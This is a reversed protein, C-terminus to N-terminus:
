VGTLARIEAIAVHYDELVHVGTLGVMQAGRVNGPLDDVFIAREPSIGGLRELTLNFIGPSPKRMKVESSDIIVDFIDAWPAMPFWLPRLEIANNTVMALKYGASRLDTLLDLVEQRLNSLPHSNGAAAFTPRNPDLELGREVALAGILPRMEAMTIEGRELRHWPHDTDQGDPGMFLNFFTDPEYGKAIASERMHKFPTATIVGGLDFLVADFQPSPPM